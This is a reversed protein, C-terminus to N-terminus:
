VLRVRGYEPQHHQRRPGPKVAVAPPVTLAVLVLLVITLVVPVASLTALVVMAAPPRLNWLMEAFPPVFPMM